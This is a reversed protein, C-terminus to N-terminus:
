HPLTGDTSPNVLHHRIMVNWAYANGCDLTLPKLEEGIVPIKDHQSLADYCVILDTLANALGHKAGIERYQGAAALYHTLAKDYEYRLLALDGLSSEVNAIGLPVSLYEYLQRAEELYQRALEEDNSRAHLDGLAKLSNAVGLRDEIADFLQQASEYLKAAEEKRGFLRAQDGMGRLCTAQGFKDDCKGFATLAKELYHQAKGKGERAAVDALLRAAYGIGPAHELQDYIRLAPKLQEKGAEVNGRRINLEGLARLTNARALEAPPYDHRVKDWIILAQQLYREAQEWRTLLLEVLGLEFLVEGRLTEGVDRVQVLQEATSVLRSSEERNGKRAAARAQRALERTYEPHFEEYEALQRLTFRHQKEADEIIGKRYPIFGDDDRNLANCLWLMFSDANLPRNEDVIVFARNPPCTQLFEEVKPSLTHTGEFPVWYLNGRLLNPQKQWQELTLMVMDDWGSYGLVLLHSHAIHKIFDNQMDPDILSIQEHTNLLRYGTHRGHLHVIQPYNPSLSTRDTSLLDGFVRATHGLTLTARLLLDDFNTTFVTHGWERHDRLLGALGLHALNVGNARGVLATLFRHHITSDQFFHQFLLQYCQPNDPGVDHFPAQSQLWQESDNRLSLFIPDKADRGKEFFDFFSDLESKTYRLRTSADPQWPRLAKEVLYEFLIIRESIDRALAIGASASMGAGILWTFPTGEPGEAELRKLFTSLQRIQAPM